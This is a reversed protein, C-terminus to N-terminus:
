FLFNSYPYLHRSRRYNYPFNSKRFLFILNTFIFFGTASRSPKQKVTFIHRLAPGDVNDRFHSFASARARSIFHFRLDGASRFQREYVGRIFFLDPLLISSFFLQTLVLNTEMQSVIDVPVLTYM